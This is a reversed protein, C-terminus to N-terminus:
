LFPKMGRSMIWGAGVILAIVIPLRIGVKTINTSLTIWGDNGTAVGIANFLAPMLGSVITSAALFSFFFQWFVWAAQAIVFGISPHLLRSTFVYDGGSRPMASGLMSYVVYVFLFIVLSILCSLLYNARPFATPGVFLFLAVGYLGAASLYGYYMGDRPSM